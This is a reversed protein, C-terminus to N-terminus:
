DSCLASRQNRGAQAFLHQNRLPVPGQLRKEKMYGKPVHVETIEIPVGDVRKAETEYWCRERTATRKPWHNARGPSASASTCPGLSRRRPLPKPDRVM